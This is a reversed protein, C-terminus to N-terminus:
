SMNSLVCRRSIQPPLEQQIEFWTHKAQAIPGNQPIQITSESVESPQINRRHLARPELM